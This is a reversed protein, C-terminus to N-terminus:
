VIEGIVKRLARRMKREGSKLSRFTVEVEKAHECKFNPMWSIHSRHYPSEWNVAASISVRHIGNEVGHYMIRIEYMSTDESGYEDIKQYLTEQETDTLESKNQFGLDELAYQRNTEYAETIKNQAEVSAPYSGSGIIYNVNTFDQWVYGGCNHSSAIFGDRSICEIPEVDKEGYTERDLNDKAETVLEKILSDLPKNDELYQKSDLKRSYNM